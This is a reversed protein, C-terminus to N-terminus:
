NDQTDSLAKAKALARAIPDLSHQARKAELEAKRRLLRLERNEYRHRATNAKILKNADLVELAKKLAAPDFATTM